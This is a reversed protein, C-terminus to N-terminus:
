YAMATAPNQENTKTKTITVLKFSGNRQKSKSKLHFHKNRMYQNRKDNIDLNKMRKDIILWGGNEM